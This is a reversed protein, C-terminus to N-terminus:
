FNDRAYSMRENLTKNHKELQKIYDSKLDEGGSDFIAKLIPLRDYGEIDLYEKIVREEGRLIGEIIGNTREKILSTLRDAQEVQLYDKLDDHLMEFSNDFFDKMLKKLNDMNISEVATDAFDQEKKQIGYRSPIETM